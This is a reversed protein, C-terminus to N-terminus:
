GAPAAELRPNVVAGNQTLRVANGIEEDLVPRGGEKDWFASLFNYLNRSYLASADAALHGATNAFGMIKVGHREVVQDAMSGEVNGGTGDGQAVALDFIVSGRRMTAIQADTVLRPAARGPILATTIVIDQRAIHASVLEAQAKQYDESMETAYGGSGEGEIGAVSEVFVPKAGLSQIQERTASRVDTASVQAGLRRATAIAQLGAVGVGMVFVRAAQVTGAATMMMPFARGYLDAAAIVAKYGALNSQSSLVDMSQARTIRPMFEMALAELGAAAYAEVQDRAGFPDFTAAVLAGPRAGALLAPDPAQVALVIDADRSAAPGPLVAAGAEAYAADAIAAGIGAGEEIAVSAGLAIFKKVTEPTAAVRSEGAAREKLIAIRM